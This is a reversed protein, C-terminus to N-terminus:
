PFTLNNSHRMISLYPFHTKTSLCPPILPGCFLKLMSPALDDASLLPTLSTQYFPHSSVPPNPTLFRSSNTLHKVRTSLLGQSPITMPTWGPMWVLCRSIKNAAVPLPTLSCTGSKSPKQTDDMDLNLTPLSIARFPFVTLLCGRQAFGWPPVDSQTCAIFRQGSLLPGNHLERGRLEMWQQRGGTAAARWTGKWTKDSRGKSSATAADPTMWSLLHKCNPLIHFFWTRVNAVCGLHILPSM